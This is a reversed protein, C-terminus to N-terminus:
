GDPVMWRHGVAAAATDLSAVGLFRAAAEIGHKEFQERAATCRISGATIGDIHSLSAQRMLQSLQNRISRSASDPDTTPRVCLPEHDSSPPSHAVRSGITQASWVSLPNTRRQPPGGLTVTRGYLDIDALTVRAIEAPRAGAFALAVAVSRRSPVMRPDAHSRVAETQQPTLLRTKRGGDDAIVAGRVLADPDVPAGLLLAEKLAVSAAWRLNRRTTAAPNYAANRHEDWGAENCWQPIIDDGIDGLSYIGRAKLYGFLAEINAALKDRTAANRAYRAAVSDLIVPQWADIDWTDSLVLRAAQVASLITPTLRQPDALLSATTHPTDRHAKWAATVLLTSLQSRDSM